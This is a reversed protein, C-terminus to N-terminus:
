ARLPPLPQGVVAADDIELDWDWSGIRALGEARELLASWSRSWRPIARRPCGQRGARSARSSGAEM